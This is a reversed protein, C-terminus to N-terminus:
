GILGEPKGDAIELLQAERHYDAATKRQANVTTVISGSAPSQAAEIFREVQEADRYLTSVDLYKKKKPNIGMHWPSLSAGHPVLKLQAVTFEKLRDALLSHRKMDLPSKKKLVSKWEEFVEVVEPKWKRKTLNSKILNSKTLYVSLYPYSICVMDKIWDPCCNLVEVIGKEVTDSKSQHKIFNKLLIWNNKYIIKDAETFRELTELIHKEQMGTDSAVEDLAIEYAGAINTSPNTLLYLFLLKDGAKLKRVYPDKWFHTNIMRSKAM